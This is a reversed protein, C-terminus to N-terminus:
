RYLEIRAIAVEAEFERKAGVLAIRTLRSTDLRSRLNEPKFATFPIDVTKWTPEARFPASYYQWPLLTQRSRLHLHYQQGNGRVLIRVGKYGGADLTSGGRRLDLAVQIFGGRNELSVQGTLRLARRGEIEVFRSAARSVGGMVQDTFRRWSTGLASVGDRSSFDDILLINGDAQGPPTDRDEEGAAAELDQWARDLARRLIWAQERPDDTGGLKELAAAVKKRAQPSLLDGSLDVLSRATVEYIARCAAADGQNFLPVGQDIAMTILRRAAAKRDVPKRDPLIVKDIPYILGNAAAIEEGVVKAGEVQLPGERRITLPRGQVSKVTVRRLLLSDAVLHCGLVAVLEKRNEPKLLTAVTGEPLAAFAEETPAFLTFPGKGDLTEVLGAAKIAAALTKFRADRQLAPHLKPLAEQAVATDPALLFLAALLAAKGMRRGTKMSLSQSM